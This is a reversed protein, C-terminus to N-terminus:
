DVLLPEVGLGETHVVRRREDVDSIQCCGAL